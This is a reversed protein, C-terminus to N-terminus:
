VDSKESWNKLANNVPNEEDRNVCKEYFLEKGLCKNFQRRKGAIYLMKTECRIKNAVLM